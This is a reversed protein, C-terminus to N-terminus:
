RRQEVPSLAATNAYDNESWGFEDELLPKLVGLVQGDVYNITIAFFLLACIVWRFNDVGGHSPAQQTESGAATESVRRM